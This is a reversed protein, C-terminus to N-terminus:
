CLRRRSKLETPVVPPSCHPVQLRERLINVFPLSPPQYIELLASTNNLVIWWLQHLGIRARQPPPLFYRKEQLWTLTAAQQDVWDNLGLVECMHSHLLNGRAALRPHDLLDHLSGTDEPWLATDETQDWWAQLVASGPIPPSACLLTVIAVADPVELWKGTDRAKANYALGQGIFRLAIDTATVEVM